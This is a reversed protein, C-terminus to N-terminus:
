GFGWLVLESWFGTCLKWRGGRLRKRKPSRYAGVAKRECDFLGQFDGM